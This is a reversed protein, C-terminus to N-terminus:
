QKNMFDIFWDIQSLFDADKNERKFKKKDEHQFNTETVDNPKYSKIAQLIFTEKGTKRAIRLAEYKAHQFSYHKETPTGNWPVFVYWFVKEKVPEEYFFDVTELKM